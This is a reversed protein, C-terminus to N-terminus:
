RRAREVDRIADRLQVALKRTEPKSPLTLTSWNIVVNIGGLQDPNQVMRRFTQAEENTLVAEPKGTKNIALTAGPPLWGGSDYGGARNLGALSGYRKNAYNLGAHINANPQVSVGYKFPGTGKHSGAYAAFTPGIVQMLGVSPTGAKWNSDWKNVVNPDGGSEQNMRRLVTDQWGTSLGLHKLEAVVNPRWRAVGTGKASWDGGGQSPKYGYWDTFLSNNYGRARPGVLVGDGGRSEVNVGGLTGATHGKGQNTIGVMFPAKLNRVWGAPAKAGSFSFTSWIRGNPNTGDIKKQIGGMFGSCDWSPNGAGGWQYPKGAQTRAWKLAGAVDAGGASEEDKGKLFSLIGSAVKTPVAKMLKGFGTSAGPIKGLLGNVVKMGASFFPELAGEALDKAKDKIWSGVDKAAGGVASAGSKLGGWISGLIGGDAMLQTGAQQYLSLARKRYKPDTPIVFEPHAPNGEGVIATPRNYVNPEPGVTGGAALLKPAEPLAGLGVWKAVKDWLAKIGKTYVTGIIFNVPKKAIDSLKNWAVGVGDKAKTFADVVADKFSNVGTKIKGWLDTGKSHISNWASSWTNTISNKLSTFSGKLWTWASDVHGRITNWMSTFKDRISTWATSWTDTVATKTKTFSDKLWSWAGSVNSKINNWRTTFWDRISTWADSWTNVIATKTKSFSDKLWTWAQDVRGKITNWTNTYKTQIATWQDAWTKTVNTKLAAFTTKMWTIVDDIKKKVNDFVERTKAWMDVFWNKVSVATERVKTGFKVLWEVVKIVADIVSGIVKVLGSFVPGALNVIAPVVTGIINAALKGLEKVTWIVVDIVPQAKTVLEGLKQGISQVAPVVRDRIFDSLSKLIPSLNKVIAGYVEMVAPVVKKTFMSWLTSLIPTVEKAVAQGLALLAPVLQTKVTTWLQQLPPLITTQFKAALSQLTNLLESKLKAGVESLVPSLKQKLLAWTQDVYDHFPKFKQYALYFAVGLAAVAAVVLGIPNLVLVANLLTQASTWLKVAVSVSIIAGALATLVPVPIISMLKLFGNAVALSLGGIPALAKVVTVFAAALNKVLDLVGPGNKRVYALFNQFGQNDKLTAGWKAFRATMEELGITIGVSMPMFANLMGVFGTVVNKIIRLFSLLADNGITSVSAGFEKFVKGAYNDGLTDLFETLSWGVSKVIPTLKPLLGRVMDVAKTFVPMTSGALGEAWDEYAVKLKALAMAADVTPKPLGEIQRQYALTADRAALRATKEAAWAKKALDSKEATLKQALALKREATEQADMMKKAADSSDRVNNFEPIFAAAFIGGAATAASFSAAIGMIAASTAAAVPVAAPALSMILALLGSVSKTAEKTDANVRVDPHRSRLADLQRRLAAIQASARATDADVRVHARRGDLRDILRQLNTLQALVNGLNLNIRVRVPSLDRLRQQFRRLEQQANGMDLNLRVRVPSLDRLDRQFRRLEQQAQAMDLNLRIRPVNRLARNIGDQIQRGVSEGLRRGEVDASRQADRLARLISPQVRSTDADVLIHGSGIRFLSM